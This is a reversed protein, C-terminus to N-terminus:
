FTVLCFFFMINVKELQEKYILSFEDGGMKKKSNFQHIAKDKVRRHETEIAETKLYPKAGGCVEEMMSIYVEKADAVAALNNAEATAQFM